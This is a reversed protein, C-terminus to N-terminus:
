EPQNGSAISGGIIVASRGVPRGINEIWGGKFSKEVLIKSKQTKNNRKKQLIV